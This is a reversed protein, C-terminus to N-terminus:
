AGTNPQWWRPLGAILDIAATPFINGELDDDRFKGTRMLMGAIGRAQASGIDRRIDDGVMLTAEAPAGLAALATRFFPEAPKGLVVPEIGSADRLAL